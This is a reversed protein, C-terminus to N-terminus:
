WDRPQEWWTFTRAELNLSQPLVPSQLSGNLKAKTSDIPNMSRSPRGPVPSIQQMEDSRLSTYLIKLFTQWIEFVRRPSDFRGGAGERAPFGYRQGASPVNVRKCWRRKSNSANIKVDTMEPPAYLFVQV